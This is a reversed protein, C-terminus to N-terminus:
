MAAVAQRGREWLRWAVALNILVLLPVGMMSAVSMPYTLVALSDPTGTFVQLPGPMGLQLMIPAAPVIVGFGIANWILFGRQSLEGRRAKVAIFIASIGFLLDPIGVAIEFALPFQGTFTKYTTGLAALRIAHFWAFVHWPTDDVIRRIGSRVRGFLIVPAAIATVPILQLWFGPLWPLLNESVYMGRSGAWVSVFGCFVIWLFYAYVPRVAESVRDRRGSRWAVAFLFTWELALLLFTSSFKM